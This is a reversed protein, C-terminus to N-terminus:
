AANGQEEGVICELPLDFDRIKICREQILLVVGRMFRLASGQGGFGRRLLFAKGRFSGGVGPWECSKEFRANGSAPPINKIKLHKSSNVPPLKHPAREIRSM